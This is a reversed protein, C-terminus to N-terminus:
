YGATGAGMITGHLACPDDIGITGHDNGVVHWGGAPADGLPIAVTGWSEAGDTAFRIEHVAYSNDVTVTTPVVAQIQARTHEGLMRHELLVTPVVRADPPTVVPARAPKPDGKCAVLALVWSFSIM